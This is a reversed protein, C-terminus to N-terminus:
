RSGALARTGARADRTRGSSRGGSLPHRSVGAREREQGSRRAARLDRAGARGAIRGARSRRVGVGIWLRRSARRRAGADAASAAAALVRQALVWGERGRDWWVHRLKGFLDLALEHENDVAWEIARVFNARDAELRDITELHRSTRLEPEAREVLGLYHVVHELSASHLEGAAELRDRAFERLVHLMAFRGEGAPRLLSKDVLSALTDLDGGGVAEAAELDFTGAFVGLRRFLAQEDDDLLAHSWDITAWLTRQREPADAPGGGLVDLSRGLRELIQAPTLVKIRAAALELALPLGDLCGHSRSCPTTAARVQPKRLRARQVFLEAADAPPLTPSRTNRSSRCTSARGAPRSCGYMPVPLWYSPSSRRRAPCSNSTTSCSCCADPASRRACSEPRGSLAPSPRSSSLRTAHGAGPPRVVRREALRRDVTFAAELALRTKGTGGPGTLTVLPADSRILKLVDALEDARAVFSMPPRVLNTNAVTMLPPFRRGGLQFLRVPEDFDKLTHEGLDAAPTDVLSRTAQSLLVQGGHGAAMIRAALHVDLGVYKPPEAIAEGTHIGIRVPFAEGGPWKARALAEQAESAAAVATTAQAFAVFFSDGEYDVEYGDHREFAERLLRRHLGLADAYRQRGLRRLLRTSGEVDTFLLTVTGTPQATM